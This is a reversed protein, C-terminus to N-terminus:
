REDRVAREYAQWALQNVKELEVFKKMQANEERLREIEDAAELLDKDTLDTDLYECAYEGCGEQIHFLNERLRTVIDDTM